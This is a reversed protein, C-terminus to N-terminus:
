LWAVCTIEPTLTVISAGKSEGHKLNERAKINERGKVVKGVHPEKGLGMAM